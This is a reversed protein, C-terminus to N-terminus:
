GHKLDEVKQQIVDSVAEAAATRKAMYGTRLFSKAGMKSTGYEVFKGYFADKSWTVLYSAIKGPVSVEKDYAILMNDRLFGPYRKQKGDRSEWEAIGVPVRMKVEEFIVRAGAVAAQRLVSESEIEGLANLADTLADPNEITVNKVM